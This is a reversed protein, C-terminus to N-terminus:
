RKKLDRNEKRESTWTGRHELLCVEQWVEVERGQKKSLVASILDSRKQFLKMCCYALDQSLVGLRQFLVSVRTLTGVRGKYLENM